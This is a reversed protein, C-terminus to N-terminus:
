DKALVEQFGVLGFHFSADRQALGKYGLSTVRLGGLGDSSKMQQVIATQEAANGTPLAGASFPAETYTLPNTTTTTANWVYQTQAGLGDTISSVAIPYHTTGQGTLATWNIVLPKYCTPTSGVVADKDYGCEQFRELRLRNGTDANSDLRYERVPAGSYSVLIRNLVAIRRHVFEPGATGTWTSIPVYDTRAGYKFEIKANAHTIEKPRLEGYGDYIEYSANWQDGTAGIMQRIAWALPPHPLYVSAFATYGSGLVKTDFTGVRGDAYHVEFWQSYGTLKGIVKVFTKRLTVYETGDGWYAGTKPFLAEGDLCLRDNDTFDVSGSAGVRCRQIVSLGSLAWGYGLTDNTIHNDIRDFERASDYTLALNEGVGNILGQTNLPIVAVASGRRSVTANVQTTGAATTSTDIAPEADRTVVVTTTTNPVRNCTVIIGGFVGLDTAICSSLSFKYEGSPLNSYTYSTGPSYYSTLSWNMDALSLYYGSPWSLTFNGDTSTVPGTINVALANTSAILGTLAMLWTSILRM